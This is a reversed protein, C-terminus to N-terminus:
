LHQNRVHTGESVNIPFCLSMCHLPTLTNLDDRVINREERSADFLWMASPLFLFLLMM